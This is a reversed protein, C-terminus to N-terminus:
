AGADKIPRALVDVALERVRADPDDLRSKLAARVAEDGRWTSAAEVAERRTDADPDVLATRLAAPASGGAPLHGCAWAALARLKPEATGLMAALVQESERPELSTVDFVLAVITDNDNGEAARLAIAGLLAPLARAGELRAIPFAAAGRLFDHDRRALLAYLEPLRSADALADLEECARVADDVDELADIM